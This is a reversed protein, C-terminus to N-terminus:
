VALSYTIAKQHVAISAILLTPVSLLCHLFVAVSVIRRFYVQYAVAKTMRNAPFLQVRVFLGLLGVSVALRMARGLLASMEAWALPRGAAEFSSWIPERACIVMLVFPEM